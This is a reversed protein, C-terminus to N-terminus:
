GEGSSHAVVLRIHHHNGLLPGLLALLKNGEPDNCKGIDACVVFKRGESQALHGAIDDSSCTVKNANLYAKIIISYPTSLSRETFGGCEINPNLRLHCADNKNIEDVRIEIYGAPIQEGHISNGIISVAGRGCIAGYNFNIGDGEEFDGEGEEDQDSAVTFCFLFHVIYFLMPTAVM